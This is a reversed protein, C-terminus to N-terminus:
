HSVRCVIEIDTFKKPLTARGDVIKKAKSSVAINFLYVYYESM